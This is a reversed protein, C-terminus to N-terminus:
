GAVPVAGGHLSLTVGIISGANTSALFGIADAIAEPLTARIM